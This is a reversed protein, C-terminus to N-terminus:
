RLVTVKATHTGEGSRLRVFYTGPAVRKGSDDAGAWGIEYRAAALSSGMLTRVRRGTVDYVDLRVAGEGDPSLAFPVTIRHTSPNPYPQGLRTERPISGEIRVLADLGAREDLSGAIAGSLRAGTPALSHREACILIGTETPKNASVDTTADASGGLSTLCRATIEPHEDEEPPPPGM